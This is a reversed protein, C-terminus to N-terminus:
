KKIRSAFEQDSEVKKVGRYFDSIDLSQNVRTIAPRSTMNGDLDFGRPSLAIHPLSINLSM